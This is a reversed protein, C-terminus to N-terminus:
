AFSANRCSSDAAYAARSPCLGGTSQAPAPYGSTYLWVTESGDTDRATRLKIALNADATGNPSSSM